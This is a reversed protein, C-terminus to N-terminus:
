KSSDLFRRIEKKAENLDHYNAIQLDPNGSVMASLRRDPQPHCLCLIPKGLSQAQGIEYGVGLSPTSVEAIIVDAEKVWAMDRHFIWEDAPDDEGTATLKADGIHESLVQGFKSLYNILDLYTKQDDRGGRISGAFYIKM